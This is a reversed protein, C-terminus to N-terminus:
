QVADRQGKYDHAAPKESKLFTVIETVLDYPLPRELPFQITSKVRKYQAIKQQFADDGAPMPYVSIHHKWGAFYVLHKGDLDFTPIGYSMTESAEPAAKRIAQKVHELVVQIDAPFTSIYEDITKLPKKDTM